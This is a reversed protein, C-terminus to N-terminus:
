KWYHRNTVTQKDTQKDTLAIVGSGNSIGDGWIWPLNLLFAWSVCPNRAVATRTHSGITSFILEVPFGMRSGFMVDIPLGTATQSTAPYQDFIALGKYKDGGNPTFDDSKRLLGQHRFVLVIPRDSLSLIEIIREATKICHVTRSHYVFPRVSPNATV